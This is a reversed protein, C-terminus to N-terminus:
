QGVEQPEADPKKPPEKRSLPRIVVSNFGFLGQPRYLVVLMIVLGYIAQRYDSAFRLVEPLASLVAGGMIAGPISGLGGLVVMSLLAISEGPTFSDPSIFSVFHAWFSGCGGAIAASIGFVMMKVYRADIGVSAAGLEDDRMARLSRGFSSDVLTIVLLTSVILIGLITYYFGFNTYEIGFLSPLPIARIGMPGNTVDIWNLMVVGIAGSLGLTGMAIYHGRLRMMPWAFLVGFIGTVVVASVFGFWVPMGYRTTLIASTYAGVGYFAAHGLSILGAFGAILNLSLALTGYVTMIIMIRLYYNDHVVLPLAIAILFGYVMPHNFTLKPVPPLPMINLSPREMKELGRRGLLGTPRFVLVVVILGLAIADRWAASIYVSTAAEAIGIIFGGVIAGSIVEMGGLVSAAFAKLMSVTGMVPYIANYLSAGLLGSIGGLASAICFTILITRDVDIGLLNAARRDEAIARVGIGFNTHKLMVHLIAITVVVVVLTSIEWVSITTDGIQFPEHTEPLPFAQTQPGFIFQLGNELVMGLGLTTILAMLIPQERVPKVAIREILYGVLFASLVGFAFALYINFGTYRLMVMAMYAAIGYAAGHGFNIINLVGFILSVGVAFLAYTAGVTLGNVLVQPLLEM